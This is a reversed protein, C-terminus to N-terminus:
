AMTRHLDPYDTAIWGMRRHGGKLLGLEIFKAVVVRKTIRGASRDSPTHAPPPPQEAGPPLLEPKTLGGVLPLLLEEPDEPAEPDLPTLPEPPEDPEVPSDPSSAPTISAVTWPSAGEPDLQGTRWVDCVVNTLM